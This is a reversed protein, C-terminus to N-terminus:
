NMVNLLTSLTQLPVLSQYIRIDFGGIEIILTMFDVLQFILRPISKRQTLCNTIITKIYCSLYKITTWLVVQDFQKFLTVFAVGFVYPDYHFPSKPKLMVTQYNKDFVFFQSIFLIIASLIETIYSDNDKTLIYVQDMAPANGSIELFRTIEQYLKGNSTNNLVFTKWFENVLATNFTVLSYHLATAKTRNEISLMQECMRRLIQLTGIDELIPNFDRLYKSSAISELIKPFDQNNVRLKQILTTDTIKSISEIFREITCKVQFGYLKNLGGMGLVSLANSIRRMFVFGVVENGLNNYWGNGASCYFIDKKRSVMMIIETAVRGILTSHKGPQNKNEIIASVEVGVDDGVVKAFSEHWVRVGDIHLYDQVGRFADSLDDLQETIFSINNLGHIKAVDFIARLRETLASRIGDSLIALPDVEIIGFFTKEMALVAEVYVSVSHIVTALEDRQSFQSFELFNAKEIVVPVTCVGRRLKAITTLLKFVQRPIVELVVRAYTVLTESYYRSVQAMQDNKKNSSNDPVHAQMMRLLATHLVYSMKLILSRLRLANHPDQKIKNQLLNVYEKSNLLEHAYSCDAVNDILGRATDTVALLRHMKKLEDVIVAMAECVAVSAAHLYTTRVDAVAKLIKTLARAAAPSPADLRAIHDAIKTCWTTLGSHAADQLTNQSSFYHSLDLMQQSALSRLRSWETPKQKVISEVQKKLTFEFQATQLLFELVRSHYQADVYLNKLKKHPYSGHLLTWRLIVNCARQCNVLKPLQETVLEETMYGEELYNQLEKSRDEMENSHGKWIEIVRTSTTINQLSTKAAKYSDWFCTLDICHGTYIPVIWCDGFFKNVVENMFSINTTLTKPSLFLIMALLSGQAALAASRHQPLPFSKTTNYIDDSLMRGIAMQVINDNIHIRQLYLHPYNSPNKTQNPVYNTRKMLQIVKDIDKFENSRKHRLVFIMIRERTLGPILIDLLLLLRVVFAISECVLQKCEVDELLTEASSQLFEGNNLREYFDEVETLYNHISEFLQYFRWIIKEYKEKLLINNSRLERTTNIKKDITESRTIYSYDPLLEKYKPPVTQFDNPILEKIRFLESVISNAHSVFWVLIKHADNVENLISM